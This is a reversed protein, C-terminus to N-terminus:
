HGALTQLVPSSPFAILAGIAIAVGYPLAETPQLLRGLWPAGSPVLAGLAAKRALVLGLALLGGVVSMAFLFPLIAPLGLWLACAALLKADGGGCWNMAFLGIGVILALVGVAACAGITQVPMGLILAVPFFAAAIAIVLRNPITFTTADSLAAAIAGVPFVAVILHALVSSTM